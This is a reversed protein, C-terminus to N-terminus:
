RYLRRVTTWTTSEVPVVGDIGTFRLKYQDYIDACPAQTAWTPRVRLRVLEGPTTPIDIDGTGCSGLQYPLVSVDQCDQVYMVDADISFTYPAWVHITISEGTAVFEFWDTDRQDDGSGYWGSIGCFWMSEEGPPMYLPQFVPPDTDCGGNYADVYGDYFDPEGELVDDPSCGFDCPLNECSSFVYDGADGGYGDIVVFYQMGAEVPLDDIRSVYDPYFDDNCAMLNLNVDYVYIKTDYTSGAMDLEV